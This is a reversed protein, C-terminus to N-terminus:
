INKQMLQQYPRWVYLILAIVPIGMGATLMFFMPYGVGDVLVGSYGAFLKPLLVTISTFAAYQTASFQRNGLRSLFAVGVSGALGGSLNDVVIAAVLAGTSPEQLLALYVFVLNSAASTVAGALFVPMLGWRLALIGGFIGGAITVVMGFGFSVRGILAISYGMDTYFVKAMVGMVIDATRYTCIILILWIAWRGYREFFDLFPAVYITQIREQPVIHWDRILRAGVWAAVLGSCLRLAEYLFSALPTADSNDQIFFPRLGSFLHFAAAFCFVLLAFHFLLRLNESASSSVIQSRDVAPERVLLTTVVGIGMLAAMGLYAIMWQVHQYEQGGSVLASIELAGAGALMMGVRYGAVTTGAILPQHDPPAFDIRYADIVIDQTASSFALFVAGFALMALEFRGLSPDWMAMWVLSLIVMAQSLLMWSRRHGFWQGFMPIRISDVLPAWVFKFGYSLAAWSLFGITAREIGAERLWVSLTGFVLLIPLGSSIGLWFMVFSQRVAQPNDSRWRGFSSMM